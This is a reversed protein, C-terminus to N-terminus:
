GGQSDVPQRPNRRDIEGKAKRGPEVTRDLDAKKAQRRHYALRDRITKEPRKLKASIFVWSKGAEILDFLRRDEEPTWNNQRRQASMEEGEARARCTPPQGSLFVSRYAWGIRARGSPLYRGNWSRRLILHRPTRSCSSACYNTRKQTWSPRRLQQAENQRSGSGSCRPSSLM